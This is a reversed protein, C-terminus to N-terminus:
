PSDDYGMKRLQAINFVIHFFTFMAFLFIVATAGMPLPDHTPEGDQEPRHHGQGITIWAM